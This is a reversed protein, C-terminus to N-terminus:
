LLSPWSFTGVNSPTHPSSFRIHYVTARDVFGAGLFAANQSTNSSTTRYTGSDATGSITAWAPLTFTEGDLIANAGAPYQAEAWASSKYWHIHSQDWEIVQFGDPTYWLWQGSTAGAFTWGTGPASVAISAWPGWEGSDGSPHRIRYDWTGEGPNDDVVGIVNGTSIIQAMSTREGSPARQLDAPTFGIPWAARVKPTTM